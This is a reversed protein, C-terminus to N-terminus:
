KKVTQKKFLDFIVDINKNIRKDVTKINEDTTRTLMGHWVIENKQADIIDIVLTGQKYDYSEYEAAQEYAEYYDRISSTQLTQKKVFFTVRLDADESFQYGLDNMKVIIAKEIRSKNMPNFGIPFDSQHEALNYSHYQSFDLEKEYDSLVRISSCSTIGLILSTLFLFKIYKM